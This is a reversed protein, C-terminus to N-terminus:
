YCSNVEGKYGDNAMWLRWWGNNHTIFWWQSDFCNMLQNMEGGGESGHSLDLDKNAEAQAALCATSSIQTAYIRQQSPLSEDLCGQSVHSEYWIMAYQNHYFHDFLAVSGFRGLLSHDNVVGVSWWGDTWSNTVMLLCQNVSPRFFFQVMKLCWQCNNSGFNVDDNPWSHKKNTM